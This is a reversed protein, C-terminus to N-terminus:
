QPYVQNLAEEVVIRNYGQMEFTEYDEEITQRKVGRKKKDEFDSKLVKRDLAHPDHPLEKPKEMEKEKEKDPTQNKGEFNIEKSRKPVFKEPEPVNIPKEDQSSPPHSFRSVNDDKSINGDIKRMPLAVGSTPKAYGLKIIEHHRETQFHHFILFVLVILAAFGGIAYVIARYDQPEQNMNVVPTPCSVNVSPCSCSTPQVNVTNLVTSNCYTNYSENRFTNVTNYATLPLNSDNRYIQFTFTNNSDTFNDLHFTQGELRLTIDSKNNEISINLSSDFVAAQAIMPIFLFLFLLYLKM